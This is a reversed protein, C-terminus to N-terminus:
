VLSYQQRVEDEGYRQELRRVIFHGRAVRQFQLMFLCNIVGGGIAGALPVAQAVIKDSVVVGFRAAVQTIFRILAPTSKSTLGKHAMHQAAEAVSRALATRVAFYGAEPTKAGTAPGGLAFVQV